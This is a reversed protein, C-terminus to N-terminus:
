KTPTVIEHMEKSYEKIKKLDEQNQDVQYKVKILLAVLSKVLETLDHIQQGTSNHGKQFDKLYPSLEEVVKKAIMKELRVEEPPTKQNIADTNKASLKLELLEKKAPPIRKGGEYDQLSRESIGLYKAFEKQSLGEQDRIHRLSEANINM